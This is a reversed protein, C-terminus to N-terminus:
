FIFPLIFSEAAKCSCVQTMLAAPHLESRIRTTAGPAASSPPYVLRSSVGPSGPNGAWSSGSAARLILGTPAPDSRSGTLRECPDGHGLVDQLEQAVLSSPLSTEGLLLSLIHRMRHEHGKWSGDKLSQVCLWRSPKRELKGPSKGRGLWYQEQVSNQCRSTCDRPSFYFIQM